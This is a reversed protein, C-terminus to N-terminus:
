MGVETSQTLIPLFTKFIDKMWKYFTHNDFAGFLIMFM